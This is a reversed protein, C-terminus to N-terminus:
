MLYKPERHKRVVTFAIKEAVVEMIRSVNERVDMLAGRNIGRMDGEGYLYLDLLYDLEELQEISLTIKVKMKDVKAM